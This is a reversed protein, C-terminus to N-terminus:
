AKKWKSRMEERYQRAAEKGGHSYAAKEESNCKQCYSRGERNGYSFESYEFWKGCISCNKGSNNQNKNTETARYEEKTSIFEQKINKKNSLNSDTEPVFQTGCKGCMWQEHYKFFDFFAIIFLLISFGIWFWDWRSYTNSEVNTIYILFAILISPWFPFREAEQARISQRKGSSSGGGLWARPRLKGSLGFSIGHTSSRGSYYSTGSKYVVDRKRVSTSGCEPCRIPTKFKTSM